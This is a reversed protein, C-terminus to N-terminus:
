VSARMFIVEYSAVIEEDLKSSEYNEIMAQLQQRTTAKPNRTSNVNHAGLGKLERMLAMVSAYRCQFVLTESSIEIFGASALFNSVQEASYFQNVHTYDDVTAWAAKLEQLTAPGFTAFVLQGEAKLVRRCDAFVAPLDECWQMVLNAYIQQITGTAVPLKEADACLYDISMGANKRRAATLMTMAIDLALVARKAAQGAILRTLFGTGCGLELIMGPYIQLPYKNLLLGGVQRQLMAAADYGAAAATFSHRIKPKDLQNDQKM